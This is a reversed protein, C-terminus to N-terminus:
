RVPILINFLFKELDQSTHGKCAIYFDPRVLYWTTRHVKFRKYLEVTGSDMWFNHVSVQPIFRDIISDLGPIDEIVFVLLHMKMGKILNHINDTKGDQTFIVYPVREGSSPGGADSNEPEYSAISGRYRIGTGSIKRFVYHRIRQSEFLRKFFSLVLPLTSNRLMRRFARDTSLFNFLRDSIRATNEAVEKREAEYTDLLCPKAYKKIVFSIKWALNSADQIGHNMGQSGVPSYLHAADGILFCRGTNFFAANMCQSHFTSFWRVNSIVTDVKTIRQFDGNIDEFRIEKQNMHRRFAGDIRWLGDGLPFFGAAASRSFAILAEDDPIGPNSRCDTAFLLQARTSGILPIGLQSRIFSRGGDAAVLYESVITFENHDSTLKCEVYDSYETFGTLQVGRDVYYGHKEIFGTLLAETEPQEILLAYPFESVHEGMKDIEFRVRTNGNFMFNIARLIKGRRVFDDAIGLQNMIELTGAHIILAGSYGTSRKDKDIIRFGIHHKILQCAM